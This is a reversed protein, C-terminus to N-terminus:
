IKLIKVDSLKTVETISLGYQYTGFGIHKINVLRMFEVLYQLLQRLVIQFNTYQPGLEM